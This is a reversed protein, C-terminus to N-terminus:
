EIESVCLKTTCQSLVIIYNVFDTKLAAHVSDGSVVARFSFLLM